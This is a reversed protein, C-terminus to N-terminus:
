FFKDRKEKRKMSAREQFREDNVPNVDGPLSESKLRRVLGITMAALQKTEAVFDRYKRRYHACFEFYSAMHM